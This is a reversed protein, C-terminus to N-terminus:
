CIIFNNAKEESKSLDIFEINGVKNILYYVKKKFFKLFSKFDYFVNGLVNTLNTSLIYLM